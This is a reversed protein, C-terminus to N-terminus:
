EEGRQIFGTRILLSRILSLLGGYPLMFLWGGLSILGANTTDAAYSVRGDFFLSLRHYTSFHAESAMFIWGAFVGFWFRGKLLIFYVPAALMLAWCVGAVYKM